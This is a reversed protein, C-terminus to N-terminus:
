QNSNKPQPLIHFHTLHSALGETALPPSHGIASTPVDHTVDGVDTVLNYIKTTCPQAGM